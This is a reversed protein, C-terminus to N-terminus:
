VTAAPNSVTTQRRALLRELGFLLGALAVLWPRLARFNPSAPRFGSATSVSDMLSIQSVPLVRRDYRAPVETAPQLLPLLLEPLEPTAGLTNWTPHLRTYFQYKRVQGLPQTTLVPRGLEDAWLVQQRATPKATSLRSLSIIPGEASPAFRSDVVRGADTPFQWVQMGSSLQQSTFAHLPAASLWFLADFPRGAPPNQRSVTLQLPAALGLAAARLAARLYRADEAFAADARLWVHFPQRRVAVTDAASLLRASDPGPQYHWVGLGPVRVQGDAPVALNLPRFTVQEETSRGIVLRLNDPQPQYASHLWQTSYPVPILHWHVQAPLLPRRGRFQALSASSFVHIPRGPFSDAAQQVRVWTNEPQRPQAPLVTLGSDLRAWATTPIAPFGARLARTEYGSRRLSDLTPRVATLTPSALLEPSIFVQGRVPPAPQQWRLGAVALALLTLLAGRLLFLLLQEPKLSRLRQNAGAELWRLSGVAVTRGPRRNWLYIALPVLLGLLAVLGVPSSFSLM